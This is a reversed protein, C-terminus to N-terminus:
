CCTGSSKGDKIKRTNELLKELEAKRKLFLKYERDWKNILKLKKKYYDYNGVFRILSANEIEWIEDVCNNLFERDHSIM